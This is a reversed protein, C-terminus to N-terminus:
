VEPVQSFLSELGKRLSTQETIRDHLLPNVKWHQAFSPNVFLVSLNEQLFEEWNDVLFDLNERSNLCAVTFFDRAEPVVLRESILFHHTKHKHVFTLEEGAEEQSVITRALANRARVFERVCDKLEM